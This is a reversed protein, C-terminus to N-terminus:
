RAVVSVYFQAENAQISVIRTVLAAAKKAMAHMM